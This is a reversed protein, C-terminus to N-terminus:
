PTKGGDYGIELRFDMLSPEGDRKVDLLYTRAATERPTSTAAGFDVAHLSEHM